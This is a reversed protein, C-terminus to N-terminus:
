HCRVFLASGFDHQNVVPCLFSWEGVSIGAAIVQDWFGVPFSLGTGPWFHLKAKLLFKLGRVLSPM